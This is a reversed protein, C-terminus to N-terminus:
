QYSTDKWKKNTCQCHCRDALCGELHDIFDPSLESLNRSEKFAPCTYFRINFLTNIYACLCCESLHYERTNSGNCGRDKDAKYESRGCEASHKGPCCNGTDEKCDHHCICATCPVICFFIYFLSMKAPLTRIGVLSRHYTISDAVRKFVCRTRGHM